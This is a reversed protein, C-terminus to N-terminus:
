ANNIYKHNCYGHGQMLTKDRVLKIQPNHGEAWAYDGHCVCANGFEGDFKEAKYIEYSLCETVKIEFNKDTDEIIEMTLTDLMRPDKFMKIYSAFSNDGNQKASNQGFAMMTESTYNKFIKLAKKEGMSEVLSKCFRIFKRKSITGLLRQTMPNGLEIEKDFKHLSQPKDQQIIGPSMGFVDKSFACAFACAPVAKTLFSRRNTKFQITKM